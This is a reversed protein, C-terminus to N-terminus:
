SSGMRLINFYASAIRSIKHHDRWSGSPTEEVFYYSSTIFASLNMCAATIIYVLLFISLNQWFLVAGVVRWELSIM